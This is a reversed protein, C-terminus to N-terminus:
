AATHSRDVVVGQEVALAYIAREAVANASLQLEDQLRRRLEDAEISILTYFRMTPQPRIRRMQLNESEMAIGAMWRAKGIFTPKPILLLREQRPIPSFIICKM